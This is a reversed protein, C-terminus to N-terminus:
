KLSLPSYNYLCITIYLIIINLYSENNNKNVKLVVSAILYYKNVEFLLNKCKFIFGDNIITEEQIYMWTGNTSKKYYMNNTKGDKM